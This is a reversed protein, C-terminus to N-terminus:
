RGVMCGDATRPGDPRRNRLLSLARRSVSRRVKTQRAHRFCVLAAAPVVSWPLLTESWSQNWAAQSIVESLGPMLAELEFLLDPQPEGGRPQQEVLQEPRGHVGLPRQKLTVDLHVVGPNPANLHSQLAAV